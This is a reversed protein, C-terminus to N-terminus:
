PQSWLSHLLERAEDPTMENIQPESYGKQLLGRVVAPSSSVFMGPMKAAPSTREPDTLRQAAATPSPDIATWNTWLVGRLKPLERPILSNQV